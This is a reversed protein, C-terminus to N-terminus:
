KQNSVFFVENLIKAVASDSLNLLELCSRNNLIDSTFVIHNELLKQKQINSVTTLATIPFLNSEEILDRLSEEEPYNWSLVKMGMCIAYSIADITIKTNTVLWAQNLNNKDLLDDFRAKTYLAVHINTKTGPMNHYKAEIMIKLSAKQAIVDVEHSICRGPMINRVSVKYGKAQLMRAIFDEFPYGTPGLNMVAEKLSYRTKTYPFQSTSLFEIIHHYIESTPINEYLKEKVHRIVQQEIQQPIGARRISNIVKSEDFAELDGNAKTVYVM